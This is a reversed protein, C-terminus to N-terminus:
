IFLLALSPLTEPSPMLHPPILSILGLLVSVTGIAILTVIAYESISEDHVVTSVLQSM